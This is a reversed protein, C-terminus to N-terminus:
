QSENFTEYSQFFLLYLASIQCAWVGQFFTGPSWIKALNLEFIVFIDIDLNVNAHGVQREESLLRNQKNNLTFFHKDVINTSLRKEIDYLLAETRRTVQLTGRPQFLKRHLAQQSGHGEQNGHFDDRVPLQQATPPRAFWWSTDHWGDQGPVCLQFPSRGKRGSINSPWDRRTICYSM